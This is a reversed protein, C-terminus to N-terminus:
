APPFKNIRTYQNLLDIANIFGQEIREKVIYGAVNYQYARQMDGQDRSTTLVFVIAGRLGPDRRATELFELGNMRPMNLDLLVLYPQVVKGERLKALAEMGDSAVIISNELRAKSFARKIGMVDVEDDDVLLITVDKKNLEAM